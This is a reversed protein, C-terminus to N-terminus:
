KKNLDRIVLKSPQPLVFMSLTNESLWAHYGVVLDNVLTDAKGGEIPYRVLHQKGSDTQLICSLYKRDPTVTPSYERDYTETITRTTKSKLNFEIIDTRGENNAAAFYLLPETPHFFPQNDYGPHITINQPNELLVQSRKSKINFLYIDTAPQAQGIHGLLVLLVCCSLKMIWFKRNDIDKKQAKAIKM